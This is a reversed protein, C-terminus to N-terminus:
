GESLQFVLMTQLLTALHILLTLQLVFHTAQFAMAFPFQACASTPSPSVPTCCSSFPGNPCKLPIVAHSIESGKLSSYTTGEVAFGGKTFSFWSLVRVGFVM